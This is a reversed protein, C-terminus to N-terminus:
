FPFLSYTVFFRSKQECRLIDNHATTLVAVAPVPHMSGKHSSILLSKM